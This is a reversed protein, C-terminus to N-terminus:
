FLLLFAATEAQKIFEEMEERYSQLIVVITNMTMHAIIPVLIRNTKVYLFAFTFGMASYLIIHIPEFHAFGFIVSSLLAAFFFNMKKYLAGFIIKRFVIEELIPGIISSVIMVAPISQILEMIRLTNESGPEIGIAKEISAAIIQAFFAMFVGGIAWLVSTSVSSQHERVLEQKRENRLFLLVILLTIVFSIVIWYGGSKIQLEEGRWGLGFGVGMMIPVGVISSLQMAIYAILIFWYEKKM